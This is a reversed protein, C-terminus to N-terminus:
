ARLAVLMGMAAMCVIQVFFFAFRVAVVPDTQEFAVHTVTQLARAALMTIALTDLTPSRVGSAVIAVVIAAYVPLNEVCNAHARMARRYWDSGHQEDARFESLNARRTLIRSWRYVGVTAFLTALTWGAFLLLVWVPITMTSVMADTVKKAREGHLRPAL